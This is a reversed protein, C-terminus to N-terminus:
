HSSNLRTSKRDKYDGVEVIGTFLRAANGLASVFFSMFSLVGTSKSAANATIIKGRGIGNADSLM